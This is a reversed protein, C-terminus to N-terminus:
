MCMCYVMICGNKGERKQFENLRGDRKGVKGLRLPKGSRERRSYEEVSRQDLLEDQTM